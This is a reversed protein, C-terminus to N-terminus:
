CREFALFGCSISRDIELLEIVNFSVQRLCFAQSPHGNKAPSHLCGQGAFM